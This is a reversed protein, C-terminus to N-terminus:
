ISMLHILEGINVCLRQTVNDTDFTECCFRGTPTTVHSGIRNLYVTGDNDRNRYFTTAQKPGHGLVPVASMDPFHWQGIRQRKCCPRMETVCQLATSNRDPDFRGIETIYIISNNTYNEGNLSLYVGTAIYM